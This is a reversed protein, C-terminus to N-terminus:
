DVYMKYNERSTLTTVVKGAIFIDVVVQALFMFIYQFDVLFIRIYERLCILVDSFTM